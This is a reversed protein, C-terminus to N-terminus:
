NLWLIEQVFKHNKKSIKRTIKKQKQSFFSILCYPSQTDRSLFIYKLYRVLLNTKNEYLVLFRFKKKSNFNMKLYLSILSFHNKLEM